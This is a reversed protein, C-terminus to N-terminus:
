FSSRDVSKRSLPANLGLWNDYDNILNQTILEYKKEEHMPNNENATTELLSNDAASESIIKYKRAPIYGKKASFDLLKRIDALDRKFLENQDYLAALNYAAVARLRQDQETQLIKMFMQEIKYLSAHTASQSLSKQSRDMVALDAVAQDNIATAEGAEAASRFHDRATEANKKVGLGRMYMVGLNYHAKMHNERAALKYYSYAKFYGSQGTAKKQELVGMVFAAEAHDKSAARTLYSKAMTEDRTFCPAELRMMGYIFASGASKDKIAKYQLEKEIEARREETQGCFSEYSFQNEYSIPTFVGRYVGATKYGADAYSPTIITLIILLLFAFRFFANFQKISNM